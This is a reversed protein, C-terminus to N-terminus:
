GWNMSLSQAYGHKFHQAALGSVAPRKVSTRGEARKFKAPTEDSDTLPDTHAAQGHSLM